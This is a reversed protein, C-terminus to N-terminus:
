DDRRARRAWWAQLVEQRSAGPNAEYFARTHQNYELQKPITSKPAGPAVSKRFCEVAEGLTRGVEHHVFHRVAANFRFSKGCHARMFAGLAPGCRWGAGIRTHLTFESPMVANRVTKSVAPPKKGGLHAAIRETLEPKIGSTSLVVQRCFTVLEARLWYWRLFEGADLTTTLTPRQM